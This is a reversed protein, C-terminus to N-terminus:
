CFAETYSLSCNFVATLRWIKILLFSLVMKCTYGGVAKIRGHQLGEHEEFAGNGEELVIGKERLATM